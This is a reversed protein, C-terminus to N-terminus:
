KKSNIEPAHIKQVSGVVKLTTRISTHIPTRDKMMPRNLIYYETWNLLDDSKFEIRDFEQVHEPMPWFDCPRDYSMISLNRFSRPDRAIVQEYFIQAFGGAPFFLCSPAVDVHDLYELLSRVFGIGPREEVPDIRCAPNLLKMRGYFSQYRELRTPHSLAMNVAIHSHGMRHLHEAALEGGLTNDASITIDAGCRTYLSITYLEPNLTRVADVTSADPISCFVLIDSEAAADKFREPEKRHDTVICQYERASLRQMLQTGYHMQYLNDSFDFVIRIKRNQHLAYYGHRNLADIVKERMAPRVSPHNNVVRYLTMISIGLERALARFNINKYGDRAEM